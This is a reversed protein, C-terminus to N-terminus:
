WDQMCISRQVALLHHESTGKFCGPKVDLRFIIAWNWFFPQSLGSQLGNTSLPFNDHMIHTSISSFPYFAKLEMGQKPLEYSNKRFPSWKSTYIPLNNGVELMMLLTHFLTMLLVDFDEFIM